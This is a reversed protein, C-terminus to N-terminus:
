MAPAQRSGRWHPWGPATRTLCPKGEIWRERDREREREIDSEGEGKLSVGVLLFVSFFDCLYEKYGVM